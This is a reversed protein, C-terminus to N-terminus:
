HSARKKRSDPVKVRVPNGCSGLFTRTQWDWWERSHKFVIDSFLTSFNYINLKANKIKKTM